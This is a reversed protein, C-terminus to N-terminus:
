RVGAFGGLASLGLLVVIIWRGIRAGGVSVWCTRAFELLFVCGAVFLVTSLLDVGSSDHVTLAVLETWASLGLFLASIGLWKWPLPSDVTTHLGLVTMALLVMGLGYVLLIFDLNSSLTTTVREGDAEQRQDRSRRSDGRMTDEIPVVASPSSGSPAIRRGARLARRRRRWLM